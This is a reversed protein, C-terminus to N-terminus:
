AIVFSKDSRCELPRQRRECGERVCALSGGNVSRAYGSAPLRKRDVVVRTLGGLGDPEFTVFTLHVMGDRDTEVEFESAFSANGTEATM